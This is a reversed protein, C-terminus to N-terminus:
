PTSAGCELRTAPWGLGLNASTGLFQGGMVSLCAIALLAGFRWQSGTTKGRSVQDTNQVPEM